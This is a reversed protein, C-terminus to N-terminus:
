RISTKARIPTVEKACSSRAACTSVRTITTNAAEPATVGYGVYVLEGTVDGNGSLATPFYDKRPLYDKVVTDKGLLYFAKLHGVSQVDNYPQAFTNEYTGNDGM